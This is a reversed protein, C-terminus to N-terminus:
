TQDSGKKEGFIRNRFKKAASFLSVGGAEVARKGVTLAIDTKSIEGKKIREMYDVLDEYPPLFDFRYIDAAWYGKGQQITYFIIILALIIVMFVM